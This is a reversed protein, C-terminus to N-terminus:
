PDFYVTIKTGHDTLTNAAISQSTAFGSGVAEFTLDNEGALGAAERISKGSFDPVVVKGNPVVGTYARKVPKPQAKPKQQPLEDDDDTTVTTSPEIRLYRFIKSFISGAVPAAIQGGYFTGKPDDIIVLVVVQPDEVPAFGCFSAIYHGEMYGLADERIKQATGTKGAM